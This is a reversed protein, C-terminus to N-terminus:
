YLLINTMFLFLTCVWAVVCIFRLFMLHFFGSMFPWIKYLKMYIFDNLIPFGMSVSLQNTTVLAWPLFSHFSAELPYQTKQPSPSLTIFINYFKITIIRSLPM